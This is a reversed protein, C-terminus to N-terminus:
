FTIAWDAPSMWSSPRWAGQMGKLVLGVYYNQAFAAYFFFHGVPYYNAAPAYWFCSRADPFGSGGDFLFRRMSPSRARRHSGLANIDLMESEDIWNLHRCVATEYLLSSLAAALPLVRQYLAYQSFAECAAEPRKPKTNSNGYDGGVM